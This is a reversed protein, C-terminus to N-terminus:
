TDQGSAVSDTPRGVPETLQRLRSGVVRIKFLIDAEELRIQLEELREAQLEEPSHAVEVLLRELDDLLSAVRLEGAKQAAQRYLRNADSLESALLREATVDFVDSEEADRSQRARANALELLLIESRELHSAVTVLLIKQGPWPVPNEPAPESSFRGAVFSVVVLLAATAALAWRRDFPWSLWRTSPQRREIEPQLRRWVRAPYDSPTEPVELVPIADLVSRLEEYRAALDPSKELAEGLRESDQAEGYYYLILDNDTPPKM